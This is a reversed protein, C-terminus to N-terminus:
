SFRGSDIVIVDNKPESVTGNSKNTDIKPEPPEIRTRTRELFDEDDDDSFDDDSNGFLNGSHDKMSSTSSNKEIDEEHSDVNQDRPQNKDSANKCNQYFDSDWSDVDSKVENEKLQEVKSKKQGDNSKKPTMNSPGAIRKKPSTSKKQHNKLFDKMTQDSRKPTTLNKTAPKESKSASPKEEWSDLDIVPIKEVPKQQPLKPKPIETDIQRKIEDPKSTKSSEIM